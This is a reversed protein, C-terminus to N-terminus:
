AVEFAVAQTVLAYLNNLQNLNMHKLGSAVSKAQASNIDSALVKIILDIMEKRDNKSM